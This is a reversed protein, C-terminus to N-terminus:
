FGSLEFLPTKEHRPMCHSMPGQSRGSFCASTCDKKNGFYDNNISDYLWVANFFDWSGKSDTLFWNYKLEHYLFEMGTKFQNYFVPAPLERINGSICSVHTFVPMEENWPFNYLSIRCPYKKSLLSGFGTGEPARLGGSPLQRPIATLRVFVLNHEM